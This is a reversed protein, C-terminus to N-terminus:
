VGGEIVQGKEAVVRGVVRYAGPTAEKCLAMAAKMREQCAPDARMREIHQLSEWPGFSYFTTPETLSQVLTGESRTDPLTAAFAEGMAHWAARFAEEKGPEVQWRALTYFGHLGETMGLRFRGSGLGSQPIGGFLLM